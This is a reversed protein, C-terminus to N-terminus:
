QGSLYNRNAWGEWGGARIKQWSGSAYPLFAIDCQRRDLRALVRSQPSPWARLNLVDGPAVRTVCYMAPSVMALYRRHAWGLTHGDEVPCWSGRCPGTVMLGCQGYRKRAVITSRSTPRDRLNLIDDTRVNLVCHEEGPVVPDAMAIEALFLLVAAALASAALLGRLILAPM